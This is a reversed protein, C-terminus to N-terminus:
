QIRPARQEGGQHALQYEGVYDQLQSEELKIEVRTAADGARPAPSEQEGQHLVLNIANGSDGLEFVIKIGAAPFVFENDPLPTLPFAGQGTAQAFLRDGDVYVTLAFGDAIQYVGPYPDLNVNM